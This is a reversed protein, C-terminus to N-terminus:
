FSEWDLGFGLRSKPNLFKHSGKTGRPAERPWFLEWLVGLLKGLVFFHMEGTRTKKLKTCGTASTIEMTLEVRTFKVMSIVEAMGALIESEVLSESCFSM